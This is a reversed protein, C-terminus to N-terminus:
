NRAGHGYGRCDCGAGVSGSVGSDGTILFIEAGFREALEAASDLAMHSSPSFDIPVLIKTPIASVAKPESM